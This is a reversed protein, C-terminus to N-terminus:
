DANCGATKWGSSRKGMESTASPHDCRAMRGQQTPDEESGPNSNEPHILYQVKNLGSIGVQALGTIAFPQGTKVKDPTNFLNLVPKSQVKSTMTAKPTPTM